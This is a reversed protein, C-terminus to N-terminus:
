AHDQCPIGGKPSYKWHYGCATYVHTHVIYEKGTTCQMIAGPNCSGVARAADEYNKYVAILQGTKDFQLVGHTDRRWVFGKVTKVRSVYSKRGICCISIAEVPIGTSRSAESISAYHALLKKGDKTYQDVPKRDDILGNNRAHIANERFTCWELNGPHNNTKDGDKHNVCRKDGVPAGLFAHAVAVHVRLDRPKGTPGTYVVCHLYGSQNKQLARVRGVRTRKGAIARRIRGHDSAEYCGGLFPIPKWIEKM